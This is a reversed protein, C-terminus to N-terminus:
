NGLFLDTLSEGRGFGGTIYRGNVLLAALEGSPAGSGSQGSEMALYKYLARTDARDASVLFAKLGDWIVHGILEGALTSLDNEPAALFRDMDSYGSNRLLFTRSPDEETRAWQKKWYCDSVENVISEVKNYYRDVNTPDRDQFGWVRM